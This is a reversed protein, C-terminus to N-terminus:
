ENTVEAKEPSLVTSQGNQKVPPLVENLYEGKEEKLNDVFIDQVQSAVQLDWGPLQSVQNIPTRSPLHLHSAEEEEEEEEAGLDGEEEAEEEEEEDRHEVTSDLGIDEEAPHTHLTPLDEM